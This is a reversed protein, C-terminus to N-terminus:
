FVDAFLLFVAFRQGTKWIGVINLLYKLLDIYHAFVRKEIAIPSYTYHFTLLISVLNNVDPACILINSMAATM